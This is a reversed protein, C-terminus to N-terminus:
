LHPSTGSKRAKIQQFREASFATSRIAHKSVQVQGKKGKNLRSVYKCQTLIVDVKGQHKAKSYALAVQMADEIAEADPEQNKKTRLIVHSGPYDRVHLWWDSGKAYSFTLKENDGASKGVWIELGSLSFFLHYPKAKEKEKLIPKPKAFCTLDERKQILHVQQLLQECTYIEQEAEQQKSKAYAVGAKLKKAQWFRRAAQEQPELNTKLEIEVEQGEGEWDSVQIKSLGPQIRFLNAQLLMGEHQIRKWELCRQLEQSSKERQQTARKLRRQIARIIGQKEQVFAAKEEEAVYFAEIESSSLTKSELLKTDCKPSPPLSYVSAEVPNLALLLHFQGDTLYCNPKKPFFEAVLFYRQKALVCEIKLVRDSDIQECSRLFAGQIYGELQRTWPTQERKVRCTLLHFRLFPEQFCLLLSFIAEGKEVDLVFKRPGVAWFSLVRSDILQPGVEEILARFQSHTLSM